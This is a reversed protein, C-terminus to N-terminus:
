APQPLVDHWSSAKLAQTILRELQAVSDIAEIQLRIAEDAPGLHETGVLLLLRQAEDIEGQVRGRAEGKAEGRAEGKEIIEQYTVSEEMGRVGKLLEHIQERGYKLGMLVFTATWIIGAQAASAERGVREEMRAIVSPLAEPAVCALPALPLTALAGNLMSEVPQEWVRVVPHEFSMRTRGSPSEFGGHGRAAPGQAERRLLVLVSEVPLRHQCRLLAAARTQWDALDDEYSAQLEFHAVYPLPWRVLMVRDAASTVTSLDADILEASTGPLGAFRLWGLPDFEILHKTTADFPKSM